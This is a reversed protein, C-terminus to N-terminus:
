VADIRSTIRVLVTRVSGDSPFAVVPETCPAGDVIMTNAGGDADGAKEVRINLSGKPGRVQAEFFSWGSPLRPDILLDGNKLRLGLIEEVGLRWLWAASGTYWTWGGRGIHPEVGGVDAALVYPEVLYREAENRNLAHNIPNLMEFVRAARDNEGLRSLAIGLWVAAHTYQGGNERIGPPYAKIYGPDRPTTDFPPWLLRILQDDQRILERSASEIAARAREPVGVGSMVAWSQAISDIRCETNASAGWPQGHDDIARLYWEGDWAAKEVAQQLRGAEAAWRTALDERKMHKCLGTFGQMTAIAFWSLWVSEGRGNQGVRNMGDNWDGSGILPLGNAGRTIGRKIARECHEFLTFREASTEFSTYRDGENPSLPPASLFPIEETLISVDGTAEVYHSVAYPLWLLDDSCRTRVGREILPHWWHLVDGEEFQRAASILIHARLRDPDSHLVALLDQLQDRFGLAGGAQYFGARAQVRSAMLQYPLWRNVMVDFAPDPTSVSVAGLHKDWHQKLEEFARNVHEPKQWRRALTEAHARDDGQGLIFIVEVSGGAEIDLHVQLAACPDAGPHVRGGLDWRLLGAPRRRDGDRGLFEQRDATMSHIRHSSTLFAVREGFEPNWPNRAMIAHCGADYESVVFARSRSQLAGLMWEVYYTATIRRARLSKNILRLRAIKVPEDVPVFVLLEQELGNSWQRWETYGAGHQIQCAADDGAPQPTPTWIHGSEEDRLYLAEAPPDCVPDNSWPTLRNEGSNLAWTCGVGAETVISGFNENALINSWPAPTHEGPELHIVYERGDASFGGYGNDFLLDTPRQLPTFVQESEPARIGVFRPPMGRQMMTRALLPGLSGQQADLVIRAVSEVLRVREEGAQDAAVLHIGSNRGLQDPEGVDRLLTFIRDRLMDMYSSAGTRLVVLDFYIGRRRWFQHARILLRLLDMENPDNMRLVLIPYDGSIGLPWLGPQGLRNAAIVGSAARLAPQQLLMLSSLKQLEPLRTPELGLRHAERGAEVAANGFTWDLSSLTAYREALELVSERSGAALTVFAFERREHPQLDLRVQLAMVPDLTWGAKGTLGGVLGLPRRANGNRGIFCRRDTEYGSVKINPTVGVIRHLLVPPKDGPERARRTFLLGNIEPLHESNVFLKSFAPHREDELPPALVVESYSTLRLTRARGSANLVTVRRIELDDSPAVCVEMTIGVGDDRRHFEVMHPHFIVRADSAAVNTPQQGVSWVAGSDEDSVYIWLGHGDSTADPQWRTLAHRRWLLGGSGTATIWSALRGNGLTHMQPFNNATAPDWAHPAAAPPIRPIAVERETERTLERPFEWPVREQLLLEVARMRPDAHFRQVLIDDCLANGLAAITMGQHHAMYARVPTFDSGASVRAPTFDAADLFGYRGSVGLRELERLNRIAQKPSVALALSTAYPAVVRDRTLGRRLGLSPVGFASYRYNHEPDQTAFASESIGWPIGLADGYSRQVDVATRDSQGLLTDPESRLLLTPMLYEFMSGSWSVLTLGEPTRAIPRGLFLWHEPLVDGKAIAFFSALRAETALLDYHHPDIRDSSVNYGIHFLRRDGDFLLRFDMGFAIAECRQGIGLISQRLESQARAGLDIADDLDQLWQAVEGANASTSFAALLKRASASFAESEVLPTAASLLKRIEEAVDKGGLPPAEILRLWPLFTEISRRMCILHHHSRELWIRIEGLAELPLAKQQAITKGIAEALEPYERECLDDLIMGWANADDKAKLGRAAFAALRARLAVTEGSSAANLARNLLDLTDALGDWLERRLAPGHAADLCGEKLAVLSVALNGSDVTSVYRPELPMLNRTDYWNLVHGRYRELRDLSDLGNRLRTALDSLDVYGLDWATLSSLFMMGINTPSTRHAIEAHPEEQFNDPPLWHDDPGAFTEFYLWTRRAIRRLFARDKAGLQETAPRASRSIRVAIEPTVLWLLLLPAAPLLAAPNVVGLAAAFAAAIAPSVWMERWHDARSARTNFRAATHATSTWILLNRRSVYLRWLTRLIADMAVAADQVLFAVALFWRGTQDALRRLLGRVAGRRRGRALGTVLETFVFAGPAALALVTWVWPSGPLVFWGAAALLVLSFPNLSRRFNEIIKWRDLRSLRNTLRVGNHGPAQGALWPLLQWDGRVWRHWRRTYERYDSPFGEYLVIDSALAARGHVGEFLDHSLLANEPTRGQLSRHFSAVEYIGKGVFIGSGFLDQYVDSVARSYIDISTDGAYLRTFLSRSGSVPSIEVRPQIITYGTRVRGSAADFEATNLPHALAGALRSVSGPPLITDADLTVVFRIGRLLDLRGELVSYASADGGLVFDNFQELKGRKREWGMWCGESPNYRRPRHLLHFPAIDAQGYRSNLQRVGDILAQEVAKDGPMREEPSDAHDSLLAFQLSPDANTLRHAELRDLLEPVEEPSAVLVPMVVATSCDPPIGNTFDLKALVRPPVILTVIWHALTIGLGWAPLLTLAIGVVWLGPSAGVALLYLAPLILAAVGAGAIAAFYLAEAHRMFWLRCKDLLPARYGLAAEFAQRGEGLLWYGVHAQQPGADSASPQALLAEAVAWESQSAGRALKEVRQRYRDRTEFDMRLYVKGPDRQLISEVRSTREFFDKWQISAIVGLNAIARAVCETDDFPGECAACHSLAFPPPLEPFLRTFAAILIELCAVRLMTPFAWLEAITLPAKEQYARVFQVSATLSLQLRSAQLLGHALLFVRPLGKDEASTLSQLNQYFQPPLDEGIQQAAREVQYDNDLFWEAAKTADPEAQAAAERARELWAPLADLEAWAPLSVPKCVSDTHQGSLEYAAAELPDVHQEPLPANM